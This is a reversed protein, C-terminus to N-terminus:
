LEERYAKSEEKQGVVYKPFGLCRGAKADEEGRLVLVVPIKVTDWPAKTDFRGWLEHQAKTAAPACAQDYSECRGDDAIVVGVAGAAQLVQVKHVIPVVGRSVVAIKGYVEEPNQLTKELMYPKAQAVEAVVQFQQPSHHATWVNSVVQRNESCVMTQKM